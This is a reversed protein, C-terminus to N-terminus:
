VRRIRTIGAGILGISLMLLTEPEPVQSFHQNFSNLTATEDQNTAWLLVNKTVNIAHQKPFLTSNSLNVSPVGNLIDAGVDTTALLSNATDRVDEQIFVGANGNNGIGSGVIQAGTIELSVDKIDYPSGSLVSAMFNITFDLFAYTGDGTVTAGNIINFALGPGPDLNGTSLGTVDINAPSLLFAADTADQAFTWNNFVKDDVTISGGQILESLLTAQAGNATFIMLLLMGTKVLKLKNM